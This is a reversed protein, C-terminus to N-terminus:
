GSRPVLGKPTAAPAGSLRSQVEHLFSAISGFGMGILVQDACGAGALGLRGAIAHTNCVILALGIGLGQAALLWWLKPIRDSKDLSRLADTAKTVIQGLILWLVTTFM